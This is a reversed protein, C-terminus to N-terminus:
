ITGYRKRTRGSRGIEYEIALEPITKGTEESLRMLDAFTTFLPTYPRYGFSLFPETFLTRSVGSIDKVCDCSSEEMKLPVGVYFLYKDNKCDTHIKTGAPMAQQLQETIDKDAWVWFYKETSILEVQFDDVGVISISGGGVSIGSVSRVVDDEQVMTIKVVLADPLPPKLRSATLTIGRERAINLANKLNSDYERMGLVGGILAVHSRLGTYDQFRPHFSLNIKKVPKDLFRGAVWGLRAMGATGSSSPGVMVPGIIEFVSIDM